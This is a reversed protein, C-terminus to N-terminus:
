WVGIDGTDERVVADQGAAEPGSASNHDVPVLLLDGDVAVVVVPVLKSELIPVEAAPRAQEVGVDRVAVSGQEEPPHLHLVPPAVLAVGARSFAAM